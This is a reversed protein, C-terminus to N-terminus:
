LLDYLGNVLQSTSKVSFSTLISNLKSVAVSEFLSCLHDDSAAFSSSIQSHSYYAAAACISLQFEAIIASSSTRFVKMFVRTTSRQPTTPLVSAKPDM